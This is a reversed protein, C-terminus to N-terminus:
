SIKKFETRLKEMYNERKFTLYGRAIPTRLTLRTVAQVNISQPVIDIYKEPQEINGIDYPHDVSIHQALFDKATMRRIMRSFNGPDFSPSNKEQKRYELAAKLLANRDFNSSSVNLLKQEAAAKEKVEEPITLGFMKDINIVVGFNVEDIELDDYIKELVHPLRISSELWYKDNKEDNDRNAAPKIYVFEKLVRQDVTGEMEIMYRESAPLLNADLIFYGDSKKWLQKQEQFGEDLMRRIKYKSLVPIKIKRKSKRWGAPVTVQFGIRSVGQSFNIMMSRTEPKFDKFLEKVTGYGGIIATAAAVAPVSVTPEM